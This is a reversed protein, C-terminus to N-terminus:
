RTSTTVPGSMRRGKDKTKTNQRFFLIQSPSQTKVRQWSEVLVDRHQLECVM